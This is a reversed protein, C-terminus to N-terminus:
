ANTKEAFCFINGLKISSYGNSKIKSSNIMAKALIDTPLPKQSELLGLKNAFKIIRSGLVEGTRDSDKRELMGPKFITIKNFHLQKVAEELEGKMKSYFIKSGPNAGYASVLIYDDVENEKAAKAFEYQYDFDVKRQAEKSGATKLTTGLCSFAVDGKVSAKWEEPKEFDVVHIKLKQHDINLPKRVFVDVQEFDKDNLLQNVLDKGTAGTAGIVLAKM